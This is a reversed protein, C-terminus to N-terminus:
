RAPFEEMVAYRGTASETRVLTFAEVRWEISGISAPPLHRSTRRALTAHPAFPRAELAFGAASLRAALVSQLGALPAPVEHSGAWAVRAARFSGVRDLAFEFGAFALGRAALAATEVRAPPVDGLFALTVHVKERPVPRGDAVQAVELAIRALAASAAEDPWVAFFLRAM